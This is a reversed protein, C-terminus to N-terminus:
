SGTNLEPKKFYQFLMYIPAGLAVIGLGALSNGTKFVMLCIAVSSALAIYCAPVWPYAMVKYPRIMDPEKSRLRFLGAVTVIYFLLSAFTCYNLLDNYSGSLCLVAAWAAQAWLAYAPVGNKNTKAAGKFFLGEKAMTSFLRAGALIMGNNCGFTSVMILIAMLVVGPEGFIMQAASTGVRGFPAHSIGQQELTGSIDGQLPLVSLYAMNALLYLLTVILTGLFLSRPINKEPQRIEGAIFTVNNWADSSFLSGVMATGFAALLALSGLSTWQSIKEPSGAADFPRSFNQALYNTKGGIFFAAGVLGLIALIKSITFLRQLWKGEEIGQTNVATLFAILVIALVQAWSVSLGGITLLVHNENWWPFIQGTYKAFAVAVAAIVGTQIVTFVTWGYVFATLKGFARQIYVYQGGAKPMMGAMEGYSLAGLLTIIGALVWAFLLWGASGLGRSMDASVLFIGSGIMSGSVILTADLLGLQKKEPTLNNEPKNL